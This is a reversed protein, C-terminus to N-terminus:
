IESLDINRRCYHYLGEDNMVWLEREADNKYPSKTIADIQARNRRIWNRVNM